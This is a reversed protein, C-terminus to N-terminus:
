LVVLDVLSRPDRDQAALDLDRRRRAFADDARWTQQQLEIGTLAVGNTGERVSAQQQQQRRPRAGPMWSGHRELVLFVRHGVCGLVGLV